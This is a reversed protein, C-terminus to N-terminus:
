ARALLEGLAREAAALHARAVFVHDRSYGCVAGLPVGAAALAATVRGLFGVLEWTMPLEFRIWALDREARAGPHRALLGALHEQRVLFTTEGGERIVQAPPDALLALDDPRPEAATGVLCFSGPLVEFRMAALATALDRAPREAGPESLSDM